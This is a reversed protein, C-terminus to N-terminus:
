PARLAPRLQTGLQTRRAGLVGERGLLRRGGGRRPRLERQRLPLSTGGRGSGPGIAPLTCRAGACGRVPRRSPSIPRLATSDESRPQSLLVMLHGVVPIRTTPIIPSNTPQALPLPRPAYSLGAAGTAFTFRSRAVQKGAEALSLSGNRNLPGVISRSAKARQM